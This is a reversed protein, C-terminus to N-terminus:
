ANVKKWCLIVNPAGFSKRWGSTFIVNVAVPMRKQGHSNKEHPTAHLALQEGILLELKVVGSAKV